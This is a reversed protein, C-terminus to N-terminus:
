AAKRTATSDSASASEDADARLPDSGATLGLALLGAGLGLCLAVTSGNGGLWNPSRGAQALQLLAAVLFAGGAVLTLLRHGLLGAVVAALGLVVAVVMGAAGWEIVGLDGELPLFALSLISVVGLAITARDVSRRATM